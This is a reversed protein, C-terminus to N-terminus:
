GQGRGEFCALVRMDEKVVNLIRRKRKRRKELGQQELRQM